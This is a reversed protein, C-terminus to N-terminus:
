LKLCSLTFLIQLSILGTCFHPYPEHYWASFCVSYHPASHRSIRSKNQKLTPAWDLLGNSKIVSNHGHYNSKPPQIASITLDIRTHEGPPVSLMDAHPLCSSSPFFSPAHVVSLPFSPSHLFARWAVQTFDFYMSHSFEASLSQLPSVFSPASAFCVASGEGQGRVRGTVTVPLSARQQCSVSWYGGYMHCDTM